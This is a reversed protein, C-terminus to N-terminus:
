SARELEYQAYRCKEKFRNLVKVQKTHITYGKKKLRFIVDSLRYISLTSWAQLPNIQGNRQLYELTRKEQSTLDM